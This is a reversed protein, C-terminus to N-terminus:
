RVGELMAEVFGRSADDNRQILMASAMIFCERATFGSAIMRAAQRWGDLYSMVRYSM